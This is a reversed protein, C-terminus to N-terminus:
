VANFVKGVNVGNVLEAAVVGDENKDSEVSLSYSRGDEERKKRKILNYSRKDFEYVGARLTEISLEKARLFM